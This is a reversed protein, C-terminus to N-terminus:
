VGNHDDLRDVHLIYRRIDNARLDAPIDTASATPASAITQPSAASAVIPRPRIPLVTDTVPTRGPGSIWQQAAARWTDMAQMRGDHEESESSGTTRGSGSESGSSSTDGEGEDSEYPHYHAGPGPASM